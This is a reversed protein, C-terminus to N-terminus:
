HKRKIPKSLVESVEVWRKIKCAERKRVTNDLIKKGRTITHKKLYRLVKINIRRSKDVNLKNTEEDQSRENIM